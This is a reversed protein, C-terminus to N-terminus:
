SRRTGPLSGWSSWGGTGNVEPRGGPIRCGSGLHWSVGGQLSPRAHTYPVYPRSCTETGTPASPAFGPISTELTQPVPRMSSAGGSRLSSGSSYNHGGYRSAGLKSGNLLVPTASSVRRIGHEHRRLGLNSRLVSKANAVRGATYRAAGTSASRVAHRFEREFLQRHQSRSWRAPVRQSHPIRAFRDPSAESDTAWGM